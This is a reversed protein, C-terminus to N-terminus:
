GPGCRRPLAPAALRSGHRRLASIMPITFPCAATPIPTPPSMRTLATAHQNISTSVVGKQYTPQSEDASVGGGGGGDNSSSTGNGWVTESGYTYPPSSGNVLLTTGGVGVVNPSCAPYQPAFTTGGPDYTAATAPPPWSHSAVPCISAASPVPAVWTVRHRSSIPPTTVRRAASSTGAGAIRSTSWARRTRPPRSRTYLNDSADNAEFLIINAMPAMVHAWEIDLSEEVSWGGIASAAPLTTGGTQNLKQFTPNGAGGFTPLGYYTSFANLDSAANPDDYADVIAITQGRGDGQIGVFGIGNSIVGNAISGLGYAGRMQNPTLMVASTSNDPKAAAPSSSRPGVIEFPPTAHWGSPLGTTVPLQHVGPLQPVASLLTRPELAECLLRRGYADHGHQRQRATRRRSRGGRKPVRFIDFM